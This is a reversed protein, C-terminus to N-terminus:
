PRKMFPVNNEQRHQLVRATDGKRCLLRRRIRGWSTDSLECSVFPQQRCLSSLVDISTESSKRVSSLLVFGGGANEKGIHKEKTTQLANFIVRKLLIFGFTPTCLMRM